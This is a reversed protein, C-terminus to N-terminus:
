DHGDGGLGKWDFGKYKNDFCGNCPTSELM